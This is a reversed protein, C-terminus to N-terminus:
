TKLKKQILFYSTTNNSLKSNILEHECKIRNIAYDNELIDLTSSCVINQRRKDDSTAIDCGLKKFWEHSRIEDFSPRESPDPKLISAILDQADQDINDPIKYQASLIQM